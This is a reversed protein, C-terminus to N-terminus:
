SGARRAPMLSPTRTPTAPSCSFAVRPGELSATGGTLLQAQRLIARSANSLQLIGM